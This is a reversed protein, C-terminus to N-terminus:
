KGTMEEEEDSLCEPLCSGQMTIKLDGFRLHAKEKSPPFMTVTLICFEGQEKVLM